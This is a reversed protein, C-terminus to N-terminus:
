RPLIQFVEYAWCVERADRVALFAARFLRGVALRSDDKESAAAPQELSPLRITAPIALVLFGETSERAGKPLAARILQGAGRQEDSPIRLRGSGRLKPESGAPFLPVIGGTQGISFLYLVSERGADPVRLDLHIDVDEGERFVSTRTGERSLEVDVGCRGEPSLPLIQFEGEISCLLENGTDRHDRRTIREDLLKAESGIATLSEVMQASMTGRHRQLDITVDSIRVGARVAILRAAENRAKEMAVECVAAPSEDLRGRAEAVVHCWQPVGYPISAAAGGTAPGASPFAVATPAAAKVAAGGAGPDGSGGGGTACAVLFIPVLAANGCAFTAPMASGAKRACADAGLRMTM